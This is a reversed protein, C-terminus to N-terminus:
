TLKLRIKEEKIRMYFCSRSTVGMKLCSLVISDTKGESQCPSPPSDDRSDKRGVKTHVRLVCLIQWFIGWNTYTHMYPGWGTANKSHKLHCECERMWLLSRWLRARASETKMKLDWFRWLYKTWCNAKEPILGTVNTVTEKNKDYFPPSFILQISVRNRELAGAGRCANEREKWLLFPLRANAAVEPIKCPACDSCKVELRTNTKWGCERM